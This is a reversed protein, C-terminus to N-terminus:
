RWTSCAATAARTTRPASRAPDPRDPVGAVPSSRRRLVARGARAPLPRHGRAGPTHTTFVTGARTVELATDFDLAPGTRPWRSSASGSSASSAPTARTPTSCRPSARDGTLRSFARVARVGGVGLLLEQLLRHETTGGYLRDTVERLPPPNDEIDTDLLLLPVRGVQAVFVRASWRRDRRAGVIRVQARPATTGRAAAHDAARRPRAGPLDGAALGRALVAPPLLRAPLAPRRRDAPRRPRQGDQPPRRRPHRPRRLVAAAGLHHRVGPSFYAIAKPSGDAGPRRRSGATAPSTSSSTPTPWSSCSCSAAQRRGAGRAAGDVRCRPDQGPRPRERALADPDIAAFVDQTEPHWSWRLNTALDGSCACRSPCSPVSPSDDSPECPLVSVCISPVIWRVPAVPWTVRSRDDVPSYGRSRGANSRCTAPRRWRVQPPM